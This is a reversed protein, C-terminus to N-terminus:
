RGRVVLVSCRCCAVAERSVSGLLHAAVAGRGRSGVVVLDSRDGARVLSGVAGSPDLTGQITAGGHAAAIAVADDLTREEDAHQEGFLEEARRWADHRGAWGHVVEVSGRRRVAEDCAVPIAAASPESGDVGVAVRCGETPISAKVVLVPCPAHHLCYTTTSGLLVGTLGGHGRPGLVVLDARVGTALDVIAVAPEAWPVHLEVDDDPGTREAVLKRVATEATDRADGPPALLDGAARVVETAYSWAAVVFLPVGRARSEALAAQLVEDASAWADLGVVVGAM